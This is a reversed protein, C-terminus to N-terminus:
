PMTLINSMEATATMYRNFDNIIGHQCPNSQEGCYDKWNLKDQVLSRTVGLERLDSAIVQEWTKKPGGPDRRGYVKLMM